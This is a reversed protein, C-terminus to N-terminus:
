REILHVFFTLLDHPIERIYVNKNQQQQKALKAQRTDQLYTEIEKIENM